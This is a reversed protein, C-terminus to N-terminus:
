IRHELCVQRWSGIIINPLKFDIYGTRIDIVIDYYIEAIMMLSDEGIAAVLTVHVCAGLTGRVHVGAVIADGRLHGESVFRLRVKGRLHCDGKVVQNTKVQMFLAKQLSVKNLM